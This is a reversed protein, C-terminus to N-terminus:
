VLTRAGEEGAAVVVVRDRELEAGEVSLVVPSATKSGGSVLGTAEALGYAPYFAEWRFGCPAFTAAFRELTEPRIPEAGNFAVTWSSLDLTAREEPTIKSSCLDYAFNPGGGTDAGLRSIARLWGIPRQLFAVPPMLTAPFGGYLPQLVGGILGMDHYPPLWLVMQSDPTHGLGHYIMALNHLLNAHTVMVGKPAATSGSTYQLFALANAGTEPCHWEGALDEGDDTALWRLSQMEPAHAFRRELNSSVHTTTLAVTAQSDAVMSRLRSIPRNLRPPYAPVAIVGAYLCGLFAAVYQLGPPYFLLTREGDVVGLTQLRTAIARAQRDLEGYNVFSEEAEGDGLFTYARRGPQHSARWRLLDVLTAPEFGAKPFPTRLDIRGNDPSGERSVAIDM